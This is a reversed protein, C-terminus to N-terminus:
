PRPLITCLLPGWGRVVAGPVELPCFDGSGRGGFGPDRKQMGGCYANSVVLWIEIQEPCYGCCRGVCLVVRRGLRVGVHSSLMRQWSWWRVRGM